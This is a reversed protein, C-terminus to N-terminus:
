SPPAGPEAPPTGSQPPAKRRRRLFVAAVAVVAVVAGGIALIQVTYDPAVPPPPTFTITVSMATGNVTVNGSPPSPVGGSASLAFFRYTGNTELFFLSTSTSSQVEGDLAVSWNTGAPLGTETFTVTYLKSFVILPGQSPGGAIVTLRNPHPWYGSTAPVELYYTGNAATVVITSTTSAYEDRVRGFLNTGNFWLTWLTGAPLGTEPYTLPYGPAVVLAIDLAADAVFWGKRLSDYSVAVPNGDSYLGASQVVTHNNDAIIGLMGYTTLAISQTYTVAVEGTAAAYAVGLPNSAVPITAIVTDNVDAIVSVTNSGNNAVYIESRAADYAVGAPTQGVLISATALTTDVIVLVHGTGRLSVFIQGLGSDYAIGLPVSGTGTGITNNVANTSDSIESVSNSGSNATFLAGIGSDYVIGTPLDGMTLAITAVVRNTLDSIVSVNDSGTNTVFVEHRASDYAVGYPFSGVTINAIVTSTADEIVSVNDSNSNVVFTEGWGSDYALAVPALGVHAANVLAYRSYPPAALAALRSTSASGALPPAVTRDGASARWGASSSPSLLAFGSSTIAFVLVLALAGRGSWGEMPPLGSRNEIFTEGSNRDTSNHIAKMREPHTKPPANPVVARSPSGRLPRAFAKGVASVYTPTGEQM